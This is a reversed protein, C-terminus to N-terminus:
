WKDSKVPEVVKIARADLEMAIVITLFSQQNSKQKEM